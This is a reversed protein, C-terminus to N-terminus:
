EDSTSEKYREIEFLLTERNGFMLHVSGDVQGVIFLALSAASLVWVASLLFEWNMWFTMSKSCAAVNNTPLQAFYCYRIYWSVVLKQFLRQIDFPNNMHKKGKDNHLKYQSEHPPEWTRVWRVVLWSVLSPMAEHHWDGGCQRSCFCSRKTGMRKGDKCQLYLMLLHM